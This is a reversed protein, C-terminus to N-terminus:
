VTAGEKLVALLAQRDTKGTSTRPLEECMIFEEPVMYHPLHRLCFARLADAGLCRGPHPHAFALLRAGVEDDPVAIVVAERVSENRLLVQEVEGLEIRYGRSKVMHDRRGVFVYNGDPQQRVIDGTRYIKEEFAQQLRNASLSQSTRVPLGWYGAMVAPGRVVLEGEQGTGVVGDNEDVAFVETNACATGIPIATVDPALEHPVVYYTCVNTETPGYLNAFQTDPLLQM